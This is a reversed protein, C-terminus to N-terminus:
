NLIAAMWKWGALFPQMVLRALIGALCLGYLIIFAWVILGLARNFWRATPGDLPNTIPKM